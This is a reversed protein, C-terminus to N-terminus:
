THGDLAALAEDESRFYAWWAVKGDRLTLAQWDTIDTPVGSAVGSARVRVKVVAGHGIPSVEDVEVRFDPFTAFLDSLYLRVGDHGVFGGEVEVILSKFEVEPHVVNLLASVDHKDFADYFRQVLQVTAQSM